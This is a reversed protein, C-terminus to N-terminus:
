GQARVGWRECSEALAIRRTVTQPDFGQEGGLRSFAEGYLVVTSALLRRLKEDDGDLFEVYRELEDRDDDLALTLMATIDALVDLQEERTYDSLM